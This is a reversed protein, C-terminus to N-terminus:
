PDTDTWASRSNAGVSHIESRSNAHRPSPPFYLHVLAILVAGAILAPVIVSSTLETKPGRIDHIDEAVGISATATM